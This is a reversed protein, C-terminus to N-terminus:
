SREGEVGTLYRLIVRTPQIIKKPKSNRLNKFGCIDFEQTWLERPPTCSKDSFLEFTDVVNDFEFNRTFQVKDFGSIDIQTM